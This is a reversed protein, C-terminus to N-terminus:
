FFLAAQMQIPNHIISLRGEITAEIIMIFQIGIAHVNYDSWMFVIM